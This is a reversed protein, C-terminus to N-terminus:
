MAGQYIQRYSIYMACYVTMLLSIFVLQLIFAFFAGTIGASIVFLMLIWIIFGIICVSFGLTIFPGINRLVGVCSFVISKITSVNNWIILAPVFWYVLSLIITNVVTIVIAWPNIAAILSHYTDATIHGNGSSSVINAVESEKILAPTLFVDLIFFVVGYVLGSILLTKLTQPQRFPEFLAQWNLKKNNFLFHSCLLIFAIYIPQVLAVSLLGIIGLLQISVITNFNWVFALAIFLTPRKKFIAFGQKLWDLGAGAPLKVAQM